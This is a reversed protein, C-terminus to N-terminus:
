SAENFRELAGLLYTTLNSGIRPDATPAWGGGNVHWSFQLWQRGAITQIGQNNGPMQGNALRLDARACVNDPCGAPYNSPFVFLVDTEDHSWGPPLDYSPLLVAMHERLLNVEPFAKALLPEELALREQTRGASPTPM